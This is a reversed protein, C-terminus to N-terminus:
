FFTVRVAFLKEVKRVQDQRALVVVRDHARIKTNPRPMIVDQGRVVAGVIVGQPLGLDKIETDILGSTELAEVDLVEAFGDRLSHAARIRGRRVHQLITSVTIARPNVVGDVGLGAVFGTYAANNILAIARGAGVRKALLSSLVNGEDDNTVTIVLECAPANAEMLADADLGDGHIVVTHNLDQAIREARDRRSEILRISVGPFDREIEQALFLGINGGGVIIVRRAAPEDHGFAAMARVQHSKDCVFYVEDGVLMQDDAQPIFARDGRVIAVLEIALDPFLGTLHRLPTNVVPCGDQCYVAVLRVKDDVLPIMDSAGPVELRRTIARAVEVEPSIIADIPLHDRSFLDAWMRKLYNQHRIRAIKTPVNFLSSAVQCAVMNVEDAYTVAILMDADAAGARELVEPHSAFGEVTQVDLQAGVKQILDPQQDIVAVDNGEAALYRAINFGVQGAGCVIVRM